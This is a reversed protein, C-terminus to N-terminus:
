FSCFGQLYCRCSLELKECRMREMLLEGPYHIRMAELLFHVYVCVFVSIRVCVPHNSYAEVWMSMGIIRLFAMCLYKVTRLLNDLLAIWIMCNHM